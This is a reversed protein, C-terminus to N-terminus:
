SPAQSTSRTGRRGSVDDALVVVTGPDGPDIWCQLLFWHPRGDVGLRVERRCGEGAVAAALAGELAAAAAEDHALEQLRRGAGTADLDEPIGLLARFAENAWRLEGTAACRALGVPAATLADPPPSLTVPSDSDTAM